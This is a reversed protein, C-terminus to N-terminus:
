SFWISFDQHAGYLLTAPEYISVSGGMSVANLLPSTKVTDEIQRIIQATQDRTESWVYFQFIGNRKDSVGTLFNVADGGVQQYTAYPLAVGLPAVDPYLRGQVRASVAGYIDAEIM